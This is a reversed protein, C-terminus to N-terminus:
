LNRVASVIDEYEIDRITRVSLRVSNQITRAMIAYKSNRLKREIEMPDGDAIAVAYGPLRTLPASGGGVEDEIEEVSFSLRRGAESDKVETRLMRCLMEARAKLSEKSMTIMRLTPIEEKARNLDLYEYFTAEAAALTLKDVRFVRALPHVKMAEIYSRKGVIIGCQPGGLMKDGSFLVVDAGQRIAKQVTPEDIGYHSLDCLLGSGMDYLLPIGCEKKIETLESVSAEKTFGVIRYNSTHIKLFAATKEPDFGKKYDAPHTRNTTGVEHLIVGSEEMIEPIRFSGGIEVLEGRSIVVECDKALAALCLEVAAANNNVIMADEAGTLRCLLDRVHEHRSSRKGEAIDYELNSYGAAADYVAKKARDSLIARGFNTHLVVGTANIVSRLHASEEKTRQIVDEIVEEKTPALGREGTLIESRYANTVYQLKEKTVEHSTEDCMRQIREDQLLEDIKPIKRLIEQQNM